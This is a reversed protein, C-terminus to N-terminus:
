EPIGYQRSAEAISMDNERVQRIAGLMRGDDWPSIDGALPRPSMRLSFVSLILINMNLVYYIYDYM